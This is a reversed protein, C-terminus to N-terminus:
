FYSATKARARLALRPQRAARGELVTQKEFLLILVPLLVLTSGASVIMTVAIMWGITILPTLISFLLAVFGLGVTLANFSIAKGSHRVTDELSQSFPLGQNFNKKLRSLYHISYDVGIGIVISSVIATGIDLPISFFGMIGFNIAITMVLPIMSITAYTIKRFTLWLMVLVVGLSMILSRMQGNVIEDTAAVNVNASGSFNLKLHKPFRRATFGEVKEIFGHIAASSNTRLVVPINLATYGTDTFDSLTDGGGNEYLLLLQSIIHDQAKGSGTASTGPVINYAPNEEHMVLNIRKILETLGLVKGVKPQDKVFTVLEDVVKLNGPDKFPEADRTHSTVLLNIVTSGAAWQNLQEASIYIDSDKMFYEANNNDVVVKSAGFLSVAFIVSAILTTLIPRRIFVGTMRILGNTYLSEWRSGPKNRTVKKEPLVLLAAPIFFLSFLMAVLTGVAVFIGFHKLQVIETLSIAYFAVATTFSTMMVPITLREVTHAVAQRKNMGKMLNDRYESFMHIGDAVGISLIFVPLTTTIINLPIHFFAKLGLTVVLSLMVVALPIIIGKIKRFTMFLCTVVILLVIPFLKRTDETMIKGLAGSVVPLGAIFHAEDGPIDHEVINKVQQYIQYQAETEDDMPALEIIISTSKRGNSVLIPNFLENALVDEEIQRLAEKTQPVEDFIPSVDLKGEKGLINDTNALSTVEIVKSLKDTWADLTTSLERNEEPSLQIIERIDEIDMWTDSDIPRQALRQLKEAIVPEASRSLQLLEDRDQDTVLHINEFATTLKQVRSLTKSNFVSKHSELLVIISDNAGTYNERLKALNVRSEHTAPLLYPTPDRELTPIYRGSIAAIAVFVILITKPYGVVLPTILRSLKM